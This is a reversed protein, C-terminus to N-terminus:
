KSAARSIEAVEPLRALAPQKDTVPVEFMKRLREFTGPDDAWRSQELDDL